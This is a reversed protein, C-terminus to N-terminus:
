TTGHCKQRRQSVVHTDISDVVAAAAAFNPSLFSDISISFVFDRLLKRGRAAPIVVVRQASAASVCAVFILLSTKM